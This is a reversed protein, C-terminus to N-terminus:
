IRDLSAPPQPPMRQYVADGTGYGVSLVDVVVPVQRNRRQDEIIEEDEVGAAVLQRVLVDDEVGVNYILGYIIQAPEALATGRGAAAGDPVVAKVLAGFEPVGENRQAIVQSRGLSFGVTSAHLVRGVMILEGDM